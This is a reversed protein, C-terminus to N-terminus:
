EPIEDPLFWTEKYRPPNHFDQTLELHSGASFGGWVSDRVPVGRKDYEVMMGNESVIVQDGTGLDFTLPSESGSLQLTEPELTGRCNPGLRFKLITRQGSRMCHVDGSSRSVRVTLRATGRLQSVTLSGLPRLERDFVHVASPTIVLLRQNVEDFALTEADCDVEAHAVRAVVAHIDKMEVRCVKNSLLVYLDRRHGGFIMKRPSEPLVIMRKVRGTALHYIFVGGHGSITFVAHMLVPMWAIDTVISSGSPDSEGRGFGERFKQTDIVSRQVPGVYACGPEASVPQFDNSFGIQLLSGSQTTNSLAMQPRILFYGDIFNQGSGIQWLPYYEFPTWSKWTRWLDRVLEKFPSQATTDDGSNSDVYTYSFNWYGHPPPVPEVYTQQWEIHPNWGLEDEDSSSVPPPPVWTMDVGVLTLCHGSERELSDSYRGFVFAVVAGTQLWSCATDPGPLSEDRSYSVVNFSAGGRDDIYKRLGGIANASTTGDDADTKCASGLEKIRLTIADYRDAASASFLLTNGPDSKCSLLSPFGRTGIYYVMNIFSTPVCYGKGGNPLTSRKQDYDPIGTIKFM